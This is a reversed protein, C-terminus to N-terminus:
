FKIIFDVSNSKKANILATQKEWSDSEVAFPFIIISM